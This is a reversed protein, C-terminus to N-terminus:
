FSRGKIRSDKKAYEDCIIPAKDLSGDNVLILELNRYTQNMVSNICRSITSECNYVPVIISYKM